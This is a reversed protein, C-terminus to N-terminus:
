HMGRIQLRLFFCVLAPSVLCNSPVCSGSEVALSVSRESRAQPVHRSQTSSSVSRSRQHAHLPQRPRSPPPSVSLSSRKPLPTRHPECSDDSLFRSHVHRCPLAQTAHGELNEVVYASEPSQLEHSAGCVAIPSERPLYTASDVASLPVALVTACESLERLLGRVDFVWLQKDLSGSILMGDSTFAVSTM